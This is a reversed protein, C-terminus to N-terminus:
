TRLSLHATIFDNQAKTFILNEGWVGPGLLNYVCTERERKSSNLDEAAAASRGTRDGYVCEHCYSPYPLAINFEFIEPKEWNSSSFINDNWYHTSVRSQTSDENKESLLRYISHKIFFLRQQILYSHLRRRRCMAARNLCETHPVSLSSVVSHTM